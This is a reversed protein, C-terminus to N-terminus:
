LSIFGMQYYIRYLKSNSHFHITELTTLTTIEKGHLDVVKFLDIKNLQEAPLLLSFKGKTNDFIFFVRIKQSEMTKSM